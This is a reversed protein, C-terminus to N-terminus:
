YRQRALANTREQARHGDKRGAVIPFNKKKNFKLTPDKKNKSSARRQFINNLVNEGDEKRRTRAVMARGYHIRFAHTAMAKSAREEEMFCDRRIQWKALENDEERNQTILKDVPLIDPVSDADSSDSDSDSSSDAESPKVQTDLFDSLRHSATQRAMRMPRGHEDDKERQLIFAVSAFKDQFKEWAEGRVVRWVNGRIMRTGAAHRWCSWQINPFREGDIFPHFKCKDPCPENGPADARCADM